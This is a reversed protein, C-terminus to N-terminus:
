KQGSEVQVSYYTLTTNLKCQVIPQNTWGEMWKKYGKDKDPDSSGIGAPM